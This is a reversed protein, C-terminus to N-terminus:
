TAKSAVTEKLLEVLRPGTVQTCFQRKVKQRGAEGMRLRLASDSLLTALAASWEAPSDALFGNVGHDVIQRNVGVPSAIVPLGCAMYQILKYGCKGREFPGDLLPMIGIDFGRISQVETAESWDISDMPLGLASANIGIAAFRGKGQAALQAFVPALPKLFAATARQGIWGVCPPADTGKSAVDLMDRDEYRSLDVATPLLEVWPAGACRAYAALYDNGAIVLAAGRMLDPHKGGLMRRVAANRHQDYDHFVADDYDLVYPIRHGLLAQEIGAPFWPLCEKEIWLLDYGERAFLMRLRRAYGRLM